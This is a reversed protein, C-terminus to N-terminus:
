DIFLRVVRWFKREVIQEVVPRTRVPQRAYGHNVYQVGAPWATGDPHNEVRVRQPYQAHTMWVSLIIWIAVALIKM